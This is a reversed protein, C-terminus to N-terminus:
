RKKEPAGLWQRVTEARPDDPHRAVFDKFERAANEYEFRGAYIKGLTLQPFSFHNPDIRKAERLYQIAKEEDGLYFYNLGMQSNPLAEEPRLEIAYKNYQLAEDFQRLSLLAGGLNVVPTFAGPEYRLATRFYNEADQYRATQYAITGLNNWASVFNPAIEVAKELHGIASEIDRKNLAKQARDYEKRAKGPISLERVSITGSAELSEGAPEFPYAIVVRGKEDALSESVVFTRHVTGRGPLFVIVTYQGPDVKSFKFRGSSDSLTQANFPFDSGHLTVSAYQGPRPEIQGRLELKREAGPASLAMALGAGILLQRWMSELAM